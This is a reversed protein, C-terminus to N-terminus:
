VTQIQTMKRDATKWLLQEIVQSLYSGLLVPRRFAIVAVAIILTASVVVFETLLEMGLSSLTASLLLTVALTIAGLKLGELIPAMFIESARKNFIRKVLALTIIYNFLYSVTIGAAAGSVGFYYGGAFVTTLLICNSLVKRRVNKYILGKARIVSDAMRGSTSLPLVALMIQLPLVADTWKEGLVILIVENAYFILFVAVPILLTNVIGISQRYMEFLKEKNDQIRSMAPFMVTDLVSGLYGGPMNRIQNAREFVGLQAPIFLRGLVLHVGQGGVFNNLKLFVVGSSFAFLDKWEKRRFRFSLRVPSLYLFVTSSLVSTTGVAAILSWIGYGLYALCIGVAYGILTVGTTVLSTQKFHFHKQLLSISISSLSNMIIVAGSVRLVPVLTPEKFFRAVPEAMFWFLWFIFFGLLLSGQFAAERHRSSVNKRQILAAGMGAETFVMGLGICGAAIAMIGFDSRTLLRAMIAMYLFQGIIQAAVQIGQWFGAQKLKGTLNM